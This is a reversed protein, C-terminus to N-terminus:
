LNDCSVAKEWLSILESCTTKVHFTCVLGALDFAGTGMTETSAHGALFAALNQSAAAGLATNTQGNGALLLEAAERVFCPWWGLIRSGVLFGHTSLLSVL